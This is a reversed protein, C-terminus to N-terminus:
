KGQNLKSNLDENIKTIDRIKENLTKDNEKFNALLKVYDSDKEMNLRILKEKTEKSSCIINEIEKEHKITLESIVRNKDNKIFNMEEIMKLQNSKFYQEQHSTFDEIENIKENFSMKLNHIIDNFEESKKKYTILDQKLTENDFTLYRIQDDKYKIQATLKNIEDQASGYNKSNLSIAQELSNELYNVKEVLDKNILELEAIRTQKLELLSEEYNKLRSNYVYNSSYNQRISNSDIFHSSPRSQNNFSQDLAQNRLPSEIRQKSNSRNHTRHLTKNFDKEQYTNNENFNNREKSSNRAEQSFGTYGGKSYNFNLKSNNLDSDLNSTSLKNGRFNSSKYQNRDVEIKGKSKTQRLNSM